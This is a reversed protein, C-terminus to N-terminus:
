GDILARGEASGKKPRAQRTKDERRTEDDDDASTIPLNEFFLCRGLKQESELLEVEEAEGDVLRRNMNVLLAVSCRRSDM